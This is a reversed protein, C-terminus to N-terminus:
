KVLNGDANFILDKKKGGTKIEVEYTTNGKAKEIKFIKSIVAGANKTQVATTVAAPLESSSIESETEVWSGDTLFNASISKGNLKFEAEYEKANEKGWKISTAAPFKKAFADAVAKPVDVAYSSAAFVIIGLVTLTMKKM